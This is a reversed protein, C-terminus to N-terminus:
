GPAVDGDGLLDLYEVVRSRLEAENLDRNRRFVRESQQAWNQLGGDGALAKFNGIRMNLSAAGMGLREAIETPTYPLREAGHRQLYMAVMDDSESWRHAPRRSQKPSRRTSRSRTATGASRMLAEEGLAVLAAIRAFEEDYARVRDPHMPGLSGQPRHAVYSYHQITEVRPLPVGAEAMADLVRAVTQGLAV